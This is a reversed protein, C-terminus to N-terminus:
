PKTKTTQNFIRRCVALLADAPICPRDGHYVKASIKENDREPRWPTVVYGWKHPTDHTTM